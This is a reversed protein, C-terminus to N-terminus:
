GKGVPGLDTVVVHLLGRRSRYTSRIIDAKSFVRPLLKLARFAPAFAGQRACDIRRDIRLRLRSCAEKRLEETICESPSLNGNGVQQSDDLEPIASREYLDTGAPPHSAARM